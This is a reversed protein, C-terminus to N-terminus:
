SFPDALFLKTPVHYLRKLAKISIDPRGILQRFPLIEVRIRPPRAKLGPIHGPIHAYPFFRRAKLSLTCLLGNSGHGQIHSNLPM